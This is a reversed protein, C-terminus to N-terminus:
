DSTTTTLDEVVPVNDKYYVIRKFVGSKKLAAMCLTCPKTNALSGSRGYGGIYLTMGKTPNKHALSALVAIEAHMTLHGNSYPALRSTQASKLYSNGEEAIVSSNKEAIAWIKVRGGSDHKTAQDTARELFRRQKNSPTAM